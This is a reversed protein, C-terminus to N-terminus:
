PGNANGADLIILWEGSEQREWLLVFKGQETGFPASGDARSVFRSTYEGVTYVWDSSSRVETVEVDFRQVEFMHAVAAAFQAISAKGRDMPRRNHLAVAHDAFAALWSTTDGARFPAVYREAVMRRFEEADPVAGGGAQVPLALTLILWLYWNKM